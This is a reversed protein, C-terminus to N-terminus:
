IGQQRPYRSAASNRYLWASDYGSSVLKGQSDRVGGDQSLLCLGYSPTYTPDDESPKMKPIFEQIIWQLFLAGNNWAKENFDVIVEPHYHRSEKSFISGGKKSDDGNFILLPVLELSGNTDVTLMVTAQRKDWGSRESRTSITEEGKLNYTMDDAFQFPIPTEDLNLIVMRRFRSEPLTMPPKLGRIEIDRETLVSNRRIFRLFSLSYRLYEEPLM